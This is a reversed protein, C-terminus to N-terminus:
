RRSRAKTSRGPSYSIQWIFRMAFYSRQGHSLKVQCDGCLCLPKGIFFLPKQLSAKWCVGRPRGLGVEVEALNHVTELILTKPPERQDPRGFGDSARTEGEIKGGNHGVKLERSHRSGCHLRGLRGHRTVVSVIDGRMARDGLTLQEGHGARDQGDDDDREAGVQGRPSVHWYHGRDRFVM